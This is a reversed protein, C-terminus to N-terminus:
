IHIYTLPYAGYGTNIGAQPESEVRLDLGSSLDLTLHKVLLVM